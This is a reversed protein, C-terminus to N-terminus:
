LESAIPMERLRAKSCFVELLSVDQTKRVHTYDALATVYRFLQSTWKKSTIQEFTLSQRLGIDFAIFLEANGREISILRMM